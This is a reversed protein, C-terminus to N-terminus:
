VIINEWLSIIKEPNYNEMSLRAEYSIKTMLQKNDVLQTMAKALGEVDGCDVLVGNNNNEILAEAGGPSCKTSVVPMGLAMAEMLANPMGEFDSTLVFLEANLLEEKVNSSNGAFVVSSSINIDRALTRLKEEDPGGGYINLTYQPHKEVFVAFARLLIDQRKQWLHLRAVHAIQTKVNDLNWQEKPITIPNPIVVIKKKIKSSFFGKAGETQCVLIDVFKYLKRKLHEFFSQNYYPDARESVVFRYSYFLKLLLIVYFALGDFNFVYDYKGQKFVKNLRITAHTFFRFHRIFYSDSDPVELVITKANNSIRPSIDKDHICCFTVDYGNDALTNGLWLFMKNVGGYNIKRYTFGSSIMLIKKM